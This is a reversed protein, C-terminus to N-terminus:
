FIQFTSVRLHCLLPINFREQSCRLKIKTMSSSRVDMFLVSCGSFFFLFAKKCKRERVCERCKFYSKMVVGVFDALFFCFDAKTEVLFDSHPKLVRKKKKSNKHRIASPARPASMSLSLLSFLTVWTNMSCSKKMRSGKRRTQKRDASILM